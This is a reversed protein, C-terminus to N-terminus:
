AADDDSDPVVTLTPGDLAVAARVRAVYEAYGGAMLPSRFRALPTGPATFLGVGPAAALVDAVDVVAPHLMRVAEPDSVAFTVRTACQARAMGDILSADARQVILLLRLGVKHGEALLRGVLARVTKGTDKGALEAARYLGALEELVVFMAPAAPSLPLVDCDDPMAALREDMLACLRRLLAVHAALDDSLGSVQWPAHRSGTFPRFLLSTPDCGAVLVAPDAAAASLQSYTWVSKGSRTAGQCVVHPRKAIPDCLPWGDEGYGILGDPVTAPLTVVDALPDDALLHLRAWRLGLPEVVLRAAGLAPALRSALATIDAPLMGPLLEITLIPDPGGSVDVLKPICITTGAAVEVTHALGAGECAARWAPRYGTTRERQAWLESRASRRRSLLPM